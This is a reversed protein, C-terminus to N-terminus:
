YQTAPTVYIKSEAYSVYLHLRRLVGMGIIMQLGNPDRSMLQSEKDSVLTIAPNVVSVSGFSLQKFPYRRSRKLKERDGPFTLMAMELSTVTDAAGTDLVARVDEGDLQVKISIHGEDLVFPVVGFDGKTWYVVKGPCHEPAILNMRANAFDFDVDFTALFDAGFLGAAGTYDPVVFLTFNEGKLPGLGFRAVDVVQDSTRGGFGMMYRGDSAKRTKLKLQEVADASIQTEPTGTDVLMRMAVDNFTVPVTVRGTDDIDMELAARRMLTCKKEPAPAPEAAFAGVLGACWSLSLALLCILCRM